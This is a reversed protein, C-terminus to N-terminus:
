VQELSTGCERCFMNVGRNRVGCTVCTQKRKVTVAQTVSGSQTEGVLKLVIVHKDDEVPFSSVVSFHQDSKSGPVTIGADNVPEFSDPIVHMYNVSACKVTSDQLSRSRLAGGANNSTTLTSGVSGDSANSGIGVATSSYVANPDVFTNSISGAQGGSAFGGCGYTPSGYWVFPIYYPAWPYYPRDRRGENYGDWYDKQKKKEEYIDTWNIVPKEFQFEVRILGDEGGIGRHNEIKATREIFKFRNGESLNGNKIFRELDISSNPQVVLEHTGTASEGDIEIKVLARVTNLNKLYVSYESGFPLFVNMAGDGKRERLVKGKNKIAVVLKNNFM